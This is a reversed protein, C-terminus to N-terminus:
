TLACGGHQTGDPLGAFQGSPGAYLDRGGRLRHNANDMPDDPSQWITRPPKRAVVRLWVDCPQRLVFHKNDYPGCASSETKPALGQDQQAGM